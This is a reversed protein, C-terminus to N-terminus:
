GLCEWRGVWWYTSAEQLPILIVDLVIVKCIVKVQLPVLGAPVHLLWM